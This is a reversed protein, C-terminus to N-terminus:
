TRRKQLVVDNVARVGPITAALRENLSKALENLKTPNPELLSLWNPHDAVFRVLAQLDTVEAKWNARTSVGKVATIPRAAVSPPAVTEADRFLNDVVAPAEGTNEAHVAEALLREREAAQAKEREERQRAEEARQKESLRRALMPRLHQLAQSIPARWKDMRAILLKHHDHASKIGPRHDAEIKQDLAQLAAIYEGVVLETEDDAIATIALALVATDQGEVRLAENPQQGHVPATPPPPPDVDPIAFATATM